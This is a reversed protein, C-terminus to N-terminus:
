RDLQQGANCLNCELFNLFLSTKRFGLDGRCRYLTIYAYGRVVIGSQCMVNLQETMVISLEFCVASVKAGLLLLKGQSAIQAGFM